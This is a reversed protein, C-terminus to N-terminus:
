NNDYLYSEGNFHLDEGIFPPISAYIMYYKRVIYLLNTNPDTDSMYDDHANLPRMHPNCKDYYSCADKKTKFKVKMYGVHDFKTGKNLWGNEGDREDIYRIVELVYFNNM